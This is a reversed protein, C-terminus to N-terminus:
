AHDEPDHGGGRTQLLPMAAERLLVALLAVLESSPAGPATRPPDDLGPLCLQRPPPAQHPIM